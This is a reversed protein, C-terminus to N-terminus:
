LFLCLVKLGFDDVRENAHKNLSDIGLRGEFGRLLETEFDSNQHLLEHFIKRFFKQILDWIEVVHYRLDKQVGIRFNFFLSTIQDDSRRLIQSIFNAM